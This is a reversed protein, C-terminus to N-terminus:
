LFYIRKKWRRGFSIYSLKEFLFFNLLTHISVIDIDMCKRWGPVHNIGANNCFVEVASGFHKEAGEYLAVLEDRKTVDCRGNFPYKM